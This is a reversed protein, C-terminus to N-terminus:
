FSIDIISSFELVTVIGSKSSICPLLLFGATLPSAAIQNSKKIGEALLISHINSINSL